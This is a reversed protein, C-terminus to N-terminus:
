STPESFENAFLTLMEGVTSCANLSKVSVELGWVEEVLSIVSLQALSDWGLEVLSKEDTVSSENVYLFEALEAKFEERTM